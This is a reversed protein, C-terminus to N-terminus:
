AASVSARGITSEFRYGGSAFIARLQDLTFPYNIRLQNSSTGLRTEKRCRFPPGHKIWEAVSPRHAEAHRIASRIGDWYQQERLKRKERPESATECTAASTTTTTASNPSPLNATRDTDNVGAWLALSEPFNTVRTGDSHIRIPPSPVFSEHYHVAVVMPLAVVSRDMSGGTDENLLEHRLIEHTAWHRVADDTENSALDVLGTDPTVALFRPEHGLISLFQRADVLYVWYQNAHEHCGTVMVVSNILPQDPEPTYQRWGPEMVDLYAKCGRILARGVFVAKVVGEDDEDDNETPRYDMKDHDPFGEQLGGSVAIARYRVAGEATKHMSSLVLVILLFFSLRRLVHHARGRVTMPAKNNNTSSFSRSSPLRITRSRLRHNNSDFPSHLRDVTEEGDGRRRKEMRRREMTPATTPVFHCPNRGEYCGDHIRRSCFGRRIRHARDKTGVGKTLLEHHLQEETARQTRWFYPLSTTNSTPAYLGGREALDESHWFSSCFSTRPM